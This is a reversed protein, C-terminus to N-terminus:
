AAKERVERFKKIMEAPSKIRSIEKQLGTIGIEQEPKITEPEETKELKPETKILKEALASIEEKGETASATEIGETERQEPTLIKKSIELIEKQGENQESESISPYDIM